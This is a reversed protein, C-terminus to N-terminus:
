DSSSRRGWLNRAEDARHDGMARPPRGVAAQDESFLGQFAFGGAGHLPAPGAASLWPAPLWDHWLPTARRAASGGGPHDCWSGRGGAMLRSRLVLRHAAFVLQPPEHGMAGDPRRRRRGTEVQHHRTARARARTAPNSDPPRNHASAGSANRTQQNQSTHMHRAHMLPHKLDSALCVLMHRPNACCPWSWPRTPPLM